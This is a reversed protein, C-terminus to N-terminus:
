HLAVVPLFPLAKKETEARDGMAKWTDVIKILQDAAPSGTSKFDDTQKSSVCHEAVIFADKFFERAAATGPLDNPVQFSGKENKIQAHDNM